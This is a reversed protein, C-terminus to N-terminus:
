GNLYNVSKIFHHTLSIHFHFLYYLICSWFLKPILYFSNNRSNNYNFFSHLFFILLFIFIFPFNIFHIYLVQKPCNTRQLSWRLQAFFRIPRPITGLNQLEDIGFNSQRYCVLGSKTFNLLLVNKADLSM